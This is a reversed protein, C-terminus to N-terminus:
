RLISAAEKARKNINNIAAELAKKVRYKPSIARLLADILDEATKKDM